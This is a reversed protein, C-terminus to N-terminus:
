KNIEKMLERVAAELQQDHGNLVQGYDNNVRIDPDIQHNELLPQNVGPLSLGTGPIGVFLTEDVQTEYWVGTGTGAVPMGILKGAKNLQYLYPFNFGDSYNGESVIVCTPKGLGEPTGENVLRTSQPRDYLAAHDNGTLALLKAHINGGTNYRTDIIVAKKGTGRGVAAEYTARLSAENMERVHTYAITGHSLSDTLHEMQKVWRKYLMTGTEEAASVPDVYETYQKKGVPDHFSIKTNKGTRDNLFKSWDENATIYNGDIQDIVYGAKLNTEPTDFPGGPLIATVSLGATNANLDYLLGLAATRDGNSYVPQYGSSAHSSNLEGVFEGLLVSFDYNNNIHSLFRSYNQYYYTWDVGGLHPDYFKKQLLHYVHELMYARQEAKNVMATGNISIPHVSGDETSIKSIQGDALLYLWKGDVSITLKGNGHDLRTLLRQEHTRPVTIWLGSNSGFTSISYLKNEDPSLVADSLQSSVPTLKLSRDELDQVDLCLNAAQKESHFRQALPNTLSGLREREAQLDPDTGTKGFNKFSAKDFFLAFIDRQGGSSAKGSQYYIMKGSNGWRPNFCPYAGQTINTRKETGDAKVLDVDLRGLLGNESQIAIYNGDPSWYFGLDGDAYSFNDGEPMLTLTKKTVLNFVKLINREEMYAVRTGDPSYKGLFEDKATAILPRTIIGPAGYFYPEGPDAITAEFIDWSRGNEVSYLITRGDPSFTVMREQEPTNTIRKTFSGSTSTVFIDGQFIFAIEKGNPSLAMENGASRVPINSILEDGFDAGFTVSIMKPKGGDTMTYLDGNQTFVLLGQDSRSLNRVPNKEMTTIQIVRSPDDISSRFINQNGNRESLYYFNNGDGWVPERDEGKFDSLKTYAKTSLDYCWIDRTVPSVHHKRYVSEYGKRDQFILKDGSSNFSAFETGASNVMISRGGTAPVAYLKLWLHDDDPFRVSTYVDHADTEYYVTKGDKSFDCPIDRTSTYTLRTANGGSAPLVFVDFNGYRDSAFALQKGDKSWKPYGNYYSNSTLPIAQGGTVPVKFVNGKYEFAIWQGDPSIAPQQMWLLHDTTQGYGNTITFLVFLILLCKIKSM